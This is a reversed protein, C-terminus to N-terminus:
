RGSTDRDQTGSRPRLPASLFQLGCQQLGGPRFKDLDAEGPQRHLRDGGARLRPDRHQVPAPRALVIEHETGDLVVARRVGHLALRLPDTFASWVDDIDTDFRDEMRVVGKGDASRLSGLIRSGGGANSTM